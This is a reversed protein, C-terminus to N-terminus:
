AGDVPANSPEPPAEPALGLRRLEPLNEKDSCFELFAQPSNGFRERINAPLKSFEDQAVLVTQMASRFDTVGTFDGYEPLRVGIPLHGTVKYRELMINIDSDDKWQQQALSPEGCSVDSGRFAESYAHQFEFQKAM